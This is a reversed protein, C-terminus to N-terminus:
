RSDKRASVAPAPGAHARGATLQDDIPMPLTVVVTTGVQRRSTIEIDGGHMRALQRAVYLGLGTGPIHSNDANVVRGFRTFVTRMEQPDIGIGEDSVSIEAYRSEARVRSSLRVTGGYPSYKIANDLLNALITLLRSRDCILIIPEDPLDLELRHSETLRMSVGAAATRAVERLDVSEVDLVLRRDELRATELMREILLNIEDVKSLLIRYTPSLGAGTVEGAHMMALYGRLVTVPGRLEHSALRLFESKVEELEAARRAVERLRDAEADRMEGLALEAQRHLWVVAAAMGAVRLVWVDEDTFGGPRTSDFAAVMGIPRDGAKWAIALGDDVRTLRLWPRYREVEPDDPDIRSRYVADAHVVRDVIGEGDERCPIGTLSAVLAPRFGYAGAQATLSDNELTLFVVAEAGALRAVTETLERFFESVNSGADTLRSVARLVELAHGQSQLAAELRVSSSRAELRTRSLELNARVRALLEAAAFPKVLYDDAGSELGGVTAELGARASLVIVPIAATRPDSRLAMVLELGDLGPMMVDTLVLDPPDATASALAALGDNVVDVTWSRSLLHSLYARMDANDDAVLVRAGQTRGPDVAGASETLRDLVPPEGVAPLSQEGPLWRLAEEVFTAASITSSATSRPAPVRAAPGQVSGFPLRITFRTGQGVQSAVEIQGGHLAVLDRVLALGIGSGEHTRASAARVRHFREFVRGLEREPIGVGTDSVTLVVEDGVRRLRVEIEGALTFKFANSLLNLVIKEWMEPDVVVPDDLSPCDVRLRLGAREVTSRFTSALDATLPGLDVPECAAELRGAELRAFDLLTNVLRLLRLGNRHATEVLSRQVEPLSGGAGALAEELPGLMLTLPTRFEHSVSSFFSTKARDLEALAEARQREMSYARAEAIAAAVHGAVLDFFSRYGDGLVQRPSAGAVLVGAPREMGPHTLPLVVAADPPPLDGDSVSRVRGAVDPVVIPRGAEVAARIPWPPEAQGLRITAPSAETGPRVGTSAALRAENGADDLLYLMSFPVDAPNRDLVDAARVCAEDVTRATREALRRLTDLRREGVVRGTTEVVATFVGGIEGAVHVPSFSFSFYCEEPYGYRHLVLQMDDSWTSESTRIVSDLMPGITDWIEAWCVSCPQGLAQPHKAGLIPSYADNYLVTYERGWLLIIPFRSALLIGVTTGLSEPWRDVPGLPTLSWDFSRMLRAMESEGRFVSRLQAMGGVQPGEV